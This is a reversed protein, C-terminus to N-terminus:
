NQNSSFITKLIKTWDIKESKEAVSLFFKLIIISINLKVRDVKNFLNLYEANM